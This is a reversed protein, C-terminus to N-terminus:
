YYYKADVIDTESEHPHIGFTGYIIPDIKIIEM